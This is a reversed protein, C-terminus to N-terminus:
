FILQMFSYLETRYFLLVKNLAQIIERHNTIRHATKQLQERLTKM